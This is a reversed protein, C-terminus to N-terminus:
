FSLRRVEYLDRNVKQLIKPFEECFMFLRRAPRSVAVYARNTSFNLSAREIDDLGLVICADFELGKIREVSSTLLKGSGATHEWIAALPVGEDELSARLRKMSEEDENIQILAISSVKESRSLVNFVQKIRLPHEVLKGILLQPKIDDLRDSAEFPPMEGFASQHFSMLFRTISRSQRMNKSFLYPIVPTKDKLSSTVKFAEVDTMGHVPSVVQRFDVSITMAGDPHVFSNLLSAEPVSLDQAEDIVVHTFREGMGEETEPLAWPMERFRDQWSHIEPLAFRLLWALWPEEEPGYRRDNWDKLLNEIVEDERIRAATGNKIRIRGEYLVTRFYAALADLPDYVWYLWRQFAGDFQEKIGTDLSDRLKEYLKSIKEFVADMRLKSTLPKSGVSTKYFKSLSQALQQLSEKIETKEAILLEFWEANLAKSMREAIQAEYTRWCGALDKVTCLGFFAKRARQEMFSIHRRRLRAIHKYQWLSQLYDGIFEPVLEVVKEPINLEEVLLERSYSILNKNALFIKTLEPSYHVKRFGERRENQQDYLFRVRQFAVTTKGSGPAGMVMMMGDMKSIFADVQDKTMHLKVAKLGTIPEKIDEIRISGGPEYLGSISPIVRSFKARALPEVGVLTYGHGHLEHFDHLEATLALQLGAHTWPLVIIRDNQDELVVASSIQNNGYWIAKYDSSVTEVYVEVMAAFPNSSISKLSEYEEIDSRTVYGRPPGANLEQNALDQTKRANNEDRQIRENLTPNNGM